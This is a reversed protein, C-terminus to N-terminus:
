RYDLGSTPRGNTTYAIRVPRGRLPCNNLSNLWDQYAMEDENNLWAMYDLQSILKNLWNLNQTLSKTDTKGKIADWLREMKEWRARMNAELEQRDVECADHRVFGSPLEECDSHDLPMYM